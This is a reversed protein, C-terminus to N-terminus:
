LINIVELYNQTNIEKHGSYPHGLDSAILKGCADYYIRIFEDGSNANLIIQIQQYGFLWRSVTHMDGRDVNVFGPLTRNREMRDSSKLYREYLEPNTKWNSKQRSIGWDLLVLSTKIYEEDVIYRHQASCYGPPDARIYKYVIGGGLIVALTTFILLELNALGFSKNKFRVFNSDLRVNSMRAGGCIVRYNFIILMNHSKM